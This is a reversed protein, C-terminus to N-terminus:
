KKKFKPPMEGPMFTMEIDMACQIGQPDLAEGQEIKKAEAKEREKFSWSKLLESTDENRMTVWYLAAGPLERKRTM